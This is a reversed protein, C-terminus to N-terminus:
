DTKPDGLSKCAETCDSDTWPRYVRMIRAEGNISYNPNAVEVLPFMDVHFLNDHNTSM